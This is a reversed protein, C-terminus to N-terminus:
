LFMLDPRLRLHTKEPHNHRELRAQAACPDCRLATWKAQLQYAKPHICHHLGLLSVSGKPQCFECFAKCKLTDLCPLKQGCSSHCCQVIIPLKCRKQCFPTSGHSRQSCKHFGQIQVIKWFWSLASHTLSISDPVTVLIEVYVKKKQTLRKQPPQLHKQAVPTTPMEPDAQDLVSPRVCSPLPRPM